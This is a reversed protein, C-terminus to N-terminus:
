RTQYSILMKEKKGSPVDDKHVVFNEWDKFWTLTQKLQEIRIDEMDTIPFVSVM